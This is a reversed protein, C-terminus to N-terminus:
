YSRALRFGITNDSYGPESFSRNATRCNTPDFFWAGGRRIRNQGRPTDIWASGDDPAGNYDTHYDDETWEFVNGSMDYLGFGNMKKLRIRHTSGGANDKNWGVSDRDNSGSYELAQNGRAAYEWEAETPLRYPKAGPPLTLNLKNIFIHVSDWSVREVPKDWGNQKFFSPNEGMIYQWQGQTIETKGMMFPAVSVEHIVIEDSDCVLVNQEPTCGMMFTGGPIDVLYDSFPDAFVTLTLTKSVPCGNNEASLRVTKVGTTEYTHEPSKETSTKGDGFDWLYSSNGSTKNVFTVKLGPYITSVPDLTFNVGLITCLDDGYKTNSGITIYPRFHYVVGQELGTILSSFTQDTLEELDLKGDQLTPNSNKGWVWGHHSINLNTLLNLQVTAQIATDSIIVLESSLFDPDLIDTAGSPIEPEKEVTCRYFALALACLFLFPLFFSYKM